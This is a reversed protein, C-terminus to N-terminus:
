AEAKELVRVLAWSKTKSVPKVPKVEVMDGLKSENNPDHIHLKTRKRMVKGYRPHRRSWKVEVTRTVERKDSIVKGVLTHMTTNMETM